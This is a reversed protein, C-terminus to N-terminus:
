VNTRISSDHEGAGGNKELLFEGSGHCVVWLITAVLCCCGRSGIKLVACGGAPGGIAQCNCHASSLVQNREPDYEPGIPGFHDPPATVM